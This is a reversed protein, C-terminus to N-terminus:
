FLAADEPLAVGLGDFSSFLVIEFLSVADPLAAADDFSRSDVMFGFLAADNSISNGVGDFARSSDVM